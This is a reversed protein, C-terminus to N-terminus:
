PKPGSALKSPWSTTRQLPDLRSARDADEVPEEDPSIGVGVLQAGDLDAAIARAREDRRQEAEPEIGGFSPPHGLAQEAAPGAGDGALGYALEAVRQLRADGQRRDEDLV